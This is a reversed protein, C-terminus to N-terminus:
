KISLVESLQVFDVFFSSFPFIKFKFKLIYVYIYFYIWMHIKAPMKRSVHIIIRYM